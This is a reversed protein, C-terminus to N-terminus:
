YANKVMKKETGPTIYLLMSKHIQMDEFKLLPNETLTIWSSITSKDDEIFYDKLIEIRQSTYGIRVDADLFGSTNIFKKIFDLSDNPLSTYYYLSHVYGIDNANLIAFDYAQRITVGVEFGVIINGPVYKLEDDEKCSWFLSLGVM